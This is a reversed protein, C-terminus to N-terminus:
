SRAGITTFTASGNTTIKRTEIAAGPPTGGNM